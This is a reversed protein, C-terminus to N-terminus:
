KSGGTPPEDHRRDQVYTSGPTQKAFSKVEAAIESLHLYGSIQRRQNSVGAISLTMLPFQAENGRRDQTVIYGRSRDPEDYLAPAAADFAQLLHHAIEEAREPRTMIGFDDGGIHVAVDSEKGQARLTTRVLEALLKIAEDGKAFGYSDNYAKFNDLDLYLFSFVEGAALRREVETRLVGAGPLGTLPNAPERAQAELLAQALKLVLERPRSPDVRGSLSIHNQGPKPASAEPHLLIVADARGKRRLEEALWRARGESEVVMVLDPRLRELAEATTHCALSWNAEGTLEVRFRVVRARGKEIVLIAISEMLRKEYEVNVVRLFGRM